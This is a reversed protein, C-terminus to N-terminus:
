SDFRNKVVRDRTTRSLAPYDAGKQHKALARDGKALTSKHARIIGRVTKSAKLIQAENPKRVGRANLYDRAIQAVTFTSPKSARKPTAKQDTSATPASANTPASPQDSM